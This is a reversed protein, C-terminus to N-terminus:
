FLEEMSLISQVMGKIAIPPEFSCKPSNLQQSSGMHSFPTHIYSCVHWLCFCQQPIVATKIHACIRFNGPYSLSLISQM